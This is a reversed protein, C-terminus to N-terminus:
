NNTLKKRMFLRKGDAPFNDLQGFVEYGLRLYLDPCQFSFTDLYAQTYGLRAAEVEAQELMKSAVGKRRHESHVWVSTFNIWGWYAEGLVGGIVASETDRATVCVADFHGDRTAMVNADFLGKQITSRTEQAPCHEVAISIPNM